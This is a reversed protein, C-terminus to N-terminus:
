THKPNVSAMIEIARDLGGIASVAVIPVIILTTVMFLAQIVDTWVVAFFGGTLVYDALTGFLCGIAAWFAGLGTLFAQEPYGLMLWGSFDSAKDSLAM